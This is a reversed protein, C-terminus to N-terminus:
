KVEEERIVDRQIYNRPPVGYMLRIRGPDDRPIIMGEKDREITISKSSRCSSFGLLSLIGALIIYTLNRAKNILM